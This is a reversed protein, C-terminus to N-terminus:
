ISFFGVEFRLNGIPPEAYPIGMYSCFSNDGNINIRGYIIQNENIKITCDNVIDSDSNTTTRGFSLYVIILHWSISNFKM